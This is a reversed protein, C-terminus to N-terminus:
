VNSLAPFIATANITITIIITIATDRIGVTNVDRVPAVDLVVRVIVVFSVIVTIMIKIKFKMCDKRIWFIISDANYM